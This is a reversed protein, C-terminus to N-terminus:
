AEGREFAANPRTVVKYEKFFHLSTNNFAGEPYPPENDRSKKPGKDCPVDIEDICGRAVLDMIQKPKSGNLSEGYRKFSNGLIIVNSLLGSSLNHIVLSEYLHHECHPMYFFTPAHALRRCEENEEIVEIGLSRMLLLDCPGFAPDYSSTKIPAKDHSTLLHRLTLALALQWRSVVSDDMSGLGYIVLEEMGLNSGTSHTLQAQSLAAELSKCVLSTRIETQMM